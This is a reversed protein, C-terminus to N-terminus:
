LVFTLWGLIFLVGGIPTYRRTNEKATISYHYCPGCFLVIGGVFIASTLLPYRARPAALLALTHILHYRSGTEFAKKRRPDLSEDDRIVHSGYAGVAVALAGSVGALRIIHSTMDSCAALLALTHILHYRSGTEFAKKRRPDVSEDDRIVLLLHIM